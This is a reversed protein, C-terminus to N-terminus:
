NSVRASIMKFIGGMGLDSVEVLELGATRVNGVTDRNINPGMTRVVLPNILDMMKAIFPNGSRVHEMLLVWGGPKVVRILEKLGLLPDPVSCFVFTAATVNFINEPFELSQVDGLVLIASTGLRESRSKARNLMGPTLDIATIKANKPWFTMNKGTGVGVELLQDGPSLKKDVIHWFKDRWPRYRLEPLIELFDYVPAIRAYRSRTATTSELNM